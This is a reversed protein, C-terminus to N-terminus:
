KLRRYYSKLLKTMRKDGNLKSKHHSYNTYVTKNDVIVKVKSGKHIECIFHTKNDNPIFESSIYGRKSPFLIYSLQFDYTM